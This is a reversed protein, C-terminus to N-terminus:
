DDDNQCGCYFRDFPEGPRPTFQSDRDRKMFETVERESGCAGCIARRPTRCNDARKDWEDISDVFIMDPTQMVGCRNCCRRVSGYPQGSQDIVHVQSM